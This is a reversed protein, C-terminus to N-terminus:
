DHRQEPNGFMALERLCHHLHSAGKAPTIMVGPLRLGYLQQNNDADILLRCLASLRAETDPLPVSAWDIWLPTQGGDLYEKVLLVGLSAASKWAISKPPDGRRYERLGSFEDAGHLQLGSSGTESDATFMANLQSAPRPYVLGHLDMHVWAWARFLGLPYTTSLSLRPCTLWGRCQTKLALSVLARQNAAIDGCVQPVATFGAAIQSRQLNDTNSLLFQFQLPDGAFVPEVQKFAISLGAINRHCHHMAVLGLGTLLFTLIFGMNNAYNLSGVLLLLVVAAFLLGARTPLIYIRRRHLLTTLQDPGQRRRIWRSSRASVSSRLSVFPARLTDTLGSM